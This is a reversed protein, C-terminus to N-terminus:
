EAEEREKLYCAVITGLKEESWLSIAGKQKEMLIKAISLGLGSNKHHAKTRADDGQFFPEFVFKQNTSAIGEGENQVILITGRERFREIGSRFAPFVWSPISHASSIVALYITGGSKTFRVANSMLNDVVRMLEKPSLEYSQQPYNETYLQINKQECVEEYGSILMEFFEEGEVEVVDIKKTSAQLSTYVSLEDLMQKMYHIKEFLISEYEKKENSSLHQDDRLSEAYAHIVTLPTKLDHALSAIMFQKEQQEKKVAQQSDIVQQKMKEFRQIVAGIEDNRHYLLTRNQQTEGFATMQVQLEKLPQIIKKHVVVMMTMYIVIFLSLAGVGLIKSQYDFLQLWKVRPIALEYIGIMQGDQFVPNKIQYFRHNEKLVTLDRYLQNTNVRMYPVNFSPEVSSFFTVGDPRYLTVTVENLRDTLEDYNSEKQIKYLTPNTIYNELESVKTSVEIFENLQQEKEYNKVVNYLLLFTMVPLIM